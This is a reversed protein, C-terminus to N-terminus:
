QLSGPELFRGIMNGGWAQVTRYIDGKMQQGEYEGTGHGIFRVAPVGNEFKGTFTGVFVDTGDAPHFTWTGWTPGSFSADVSANAFVIDYGTKRPEPTSDAHWSVALELLQMNRIEIHGSKLTRLQGADIVCMGLANVTYPCTTGTGSMGAPFYLGYFETHVAGAQPPKSASAPTTLALVAVGAILLVPIVWRRKM